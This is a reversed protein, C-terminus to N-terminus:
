ESSVMCSSPHCMTIMALSRASVMTLPMDTGLRAAEAVAAAHRSAACEEDCKGFAAKAIASSIFRIKNALGSVASEPNPLSLDFTCAGTALDAFLPLPIQPLLAARNCTVSVM